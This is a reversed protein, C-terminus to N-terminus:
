RQIEVARVYNEANGHLALYTKGNRNVLQAPGNGLQGSYVVVARDKTFESNTYVPMNGNFLGVREWLGITENEWKLFAGTTAQTFLPLNDPHIFVMNGAGSRTEAAILNASRNILVAFSANIDGFCSGGGIGSFTLPPKSYSLNLVAADAEEISSVTRTPEIEVVEVKYRRSPRITPFVSQASIPNYVRAIEIPSMEDVAKRRLTLNNFPESLPEEVDPQVM